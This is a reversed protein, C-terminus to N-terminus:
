VSCKDYFSTSNEDLAKIAVILIIMYNKNDIKYIHHMYKNIQTYQVMKKMM